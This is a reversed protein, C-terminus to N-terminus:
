AERQKPACAACLGNLDEPVSLNPFPLGLEGCLREPEYSAALPNLIYGALMTDFDGARLLHGGLLCAAYVRKIDFTRKKIKDDAFIEYLADCFGPTGTDAAIVAGDFAFAAATIGSM